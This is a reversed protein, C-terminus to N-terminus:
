LCYCLKDETKLITNMKQNIKNEIWRISVQGSLTLKRECTQLLCPFINIVLAVMAESNLAIKQVDPRQQCRAIEKELEKLQHKKM